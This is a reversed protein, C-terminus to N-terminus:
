REPVLPRRSRQETLACSLPIMMILKVNPTGTSVRSGRLAHHKGGKNSHKGQSGRDHIGVVSLKMRYVRAYCGRMPTWAPLLPGALLLVPPFM